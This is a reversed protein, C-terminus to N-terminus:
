LRNVEERQPEKSHVGLPTSCDPDARRTACRGCLLCTCGPVSCLHCACGPACSLHLRPRSSTDCQPRVDSLHLRACVVPAAQVQQVHRVALDTRFAGLRQCPRQGGISRETDQEDVAVPEAAIAEQVEDTRRAAKAEQGAASTGRSLPRTGVGGEAGGEGLDAGQGKRTGVSEERAWTRVKERGEGRAKRGRGPAKRRGASEPARGTQGTHHAELQM